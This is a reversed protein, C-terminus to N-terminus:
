SVLVTLLGGTDRVLGQVGLCKLLLAAKKVNRTPITLVKIKRKSRKLLLVAATLERMDDGVIQLAVVAKETSNRSQEWRGARIGLRQRHGPSNDNRKEM